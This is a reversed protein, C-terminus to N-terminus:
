ERTVPALDAGAAATLRRSWKQPARPRMPNPPERKTSICVTCHAIGNSYTFSAGNDNPGDLHDIAAGSLSCNSDPAREQSPACPALSHLPRGDQFHSFAGLNPRSIRDAQSRPRASAAPARCSRARGSSSNAVPAPRGSSLPLYNIM